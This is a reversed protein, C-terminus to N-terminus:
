NKISLLSFYRERITLPDEPLIKGKASEDLLNKYYKVALDSAGYKELLVALNYKYDVNEPAVSVAQFYYEIAKKLDNKAYYLNAIHAPIVSIEKNEQWLKELKPIASDGYEESLLIIYNNLADTNEIDDNIIKKYIEKANSFQKARHYSTALGFLANKDNPLIELVQKYYTVAVEYLGMSLADFADKRLKLVEGDSQKKVEVSLTKEQDYFEPKTFVKVIKKKPKTEKDAVGTNEVKPANALNNPANNTSQKEEFPEVEDYFPDNFEGRKVNIKKSNIEPLTQNSLKILENLAEIDDRPPMRVVQNSNNNAILSNNYFKDAVVLNATKQMSKPLGSFIPTLAENTKNLPLNNEESIAIAKVEKINEEDDIPVVAVKDVIEPESETKKDAINKESKVEKSPNQEKIEEKAEVLEQKIEEKVEQPKETTEQTLNEAKTTENEPEASVSITVEEYNGKQEPSAEAVPAVYDPKSLIEIQSYNNKPKPAEYEQYSPENIIPENNNQSEDIKVDKAVALPPPTEAENKKQEEFVDGVADKLIDASINNVVNPQPNEQSQPPETLSPLVPPEASASATSISFALFFIYTFFRKM